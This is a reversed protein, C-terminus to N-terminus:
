PYLLICSTHLTEIVICQYSFSEKKYAKELVRANRTLNQDFQRSIKNLRDPPQFIPFHDNGKRKKMENRKTRNAHLSLFFSFMIHAQIYLCKRLIISFLILLSQLYINLNIMIAVDNFFAETVTALVVACSNM